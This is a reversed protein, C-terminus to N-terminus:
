TSRLSNQFSLKSQKKREMMEKLQPNGESHISEERIEEEVNEHAVNLLIPIFPSLVLVGVRMLSVSWKDERKSNFILGPNTIALQLSSILLPGVLTTTMCMITVSSFKWPYNVLSEWGGNLDIMLYLIFGDKFSDSYHSIISWCKKAWHSSKHFKKYQSLIDKVDQIFPLYKAVIGPFRSESIFNAVEPHYNHKLQLFIDAEANKERTEVLYIQLGLKRKTKKGYHHHVHLGFMNFKERLDNILTGPSEIIRLMFELQSGNIEQRYKRKFKFYMTLGFYFFIIIGISSALITNANNTKCRMPEDKDGHCEIIGDCVSAVTEMNEYIKSPCRLTAFEDIKGKAIYKAYCLDLNEDVANDCDPHHNCQLDPHICVTNNNKTCRFFDPNTCAQCGYGPESCSERCNHPDWFETKNNERIINKDGFPPCYTFIDYGNNVKGACVTNYYIEVYKHETCRENVTFIRDSLDECTGPLVEKFRQIHATPCQTPPNSLFKSTKWM